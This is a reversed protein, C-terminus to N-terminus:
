DPAGADQGSLMSAVDDQHMDHVAGAGPLDCAIKALCLAHSDLLDSDHRFEEADRALRKDDGSARGVRNTVRRHSVLSIQDHDAGGM